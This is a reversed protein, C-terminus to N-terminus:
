KEDGYQITGKIEGWIIYEGFFEYKLDADSEDAREELTEAIIEKAEDETKAEYIEKSGDVYVFYM